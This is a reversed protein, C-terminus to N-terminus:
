KILKKKLHFNVLLTIEKTLDSVKIKKYNFHDPHLQVLYMSSISIGYKSEIIYKYLNLQISYHFFTCDPIHEIPYKAYKNSMNDINKARKWDYISFSGDINKSVMDISGALDLEEHYIVWETRYPTIQNEIQFNLFYQYEISNNETPLNNYYNEISKHLYTGQLSAEKGNNEWLSLIDAQSLNFYINDPKKNKKAINKSIQQKDFPHFFMKIFTTVSLSVKVNNVTYIHPIEDFSINIDRDHKNLENLM